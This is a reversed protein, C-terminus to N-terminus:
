SSLGWSLGPTIRGRPSSRWNLVRNSGGGDEDAPESSKRKQADGQRKQTGSGKRTGGGGEDNVDETGASDDDTASAGALRMLESRMDQESVEGKKKEGTVEIPMGCHPCKLTKGKLKDKVRYGHGCNICSVKIM